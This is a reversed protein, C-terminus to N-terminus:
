ITFDTTTEGARRIGQRQAELCLDEMTVADLKELLTEQAERWIPGIVKEGLEASSATDDDEAEMRSVVRVIEGLSVRRRERALTYGGRPGRVGKLIGERVLQQLVQELYRAPIGQRETIDRSQVPNPRANFAVDLVAELALATKRSLRLM